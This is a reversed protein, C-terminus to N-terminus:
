QRPRDDCGSHVVERQESERFQRATDRVWENFSYSLGGNKMKWSLERSIKEESRLRSKSNALQTKMRSAVDMHEEDSLLFKLERRSSACGPYRFM